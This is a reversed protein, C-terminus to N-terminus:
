LFFVHHLLEGYFFDKSFAFQTPIAMRLKETNPQKRLLPIEM